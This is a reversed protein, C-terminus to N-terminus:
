GSPPRRNLDDSPEAGDLGLIPRGPGDRLIGSSVLRGTWTLFVVGVGIAEGIVDEGQAREQAEAARRTDTVERVLIQVHGVLCRIAQTLVIKNAWHKGGRRDGGLHQMALVAQCIFMYDPQRAEKVDRWGDEIRAVMMASDGLGAHRARWQPQEM